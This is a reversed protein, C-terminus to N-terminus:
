VRRGGRKHARELASLLGTEGGGDDGGDDDGQGSGLPAGAAPKAARKAPVAGASAAAAREKTARRQLFRPTPVHLLLRRSAIEAVLLLLAVSVLWPGLQQRGRSRRPGALVQASAPSVNGGTRRTLGRLTVEGYRPDPQLEWEPSFPRALPPLRLSEGGIRVAARHVGEQVLPVRAEVRGPQLRTFRLPGTAGDPTTHVGDIGDLVAAREPEVELSYVATDRERRADVYVGGPAGGCLWRVVASFLDAYGDWQGWAGTLAGDAEGLFAAGRGLGVQWHALLPADHEDLTTIDRDARDRIWAVSFGGVPPAEDPLQGLLQLTPEVRLETSEEVLASRTVEITEQAFVRPLETADAVFQCRGNGLEAIEELLPADRDSPSGLGIVSVTIGDAALKPVFELYDLPEEADSADAFLVIHRGEQEAESLQRACEHLAAGVYIGGGSSEIARVQQQIGEKDDVATLPLVVHAETDVALVAVADTPAMLEIAGAAGRNALQMKTTDGATAQMSGSRDLAVAMALGFRRQEDRIELTVPLVEEIPSQHYGGVGFSQHGGTMLLGGGLDRVWSRVVQMAGTPLASAPVDELVVAEFGDLEALTLPAVEPAAVVVDIGATRLSRSLRDERGGPTVCLVRTRTLGRVVGLGRDNEPVADGELQVELAVTHEGPEGLELPLQLANRGTRLQATGRRVSEGDLLLHWRAPGDATAVVTANLAFPADIPVEPPVRVDHVAADRGFARGVPEVDIRVGRREALRALADVRERAVEGDSWVVLTANRGDPVLGLATTLAGGLDSGDRDFTREAESWRLTDSLHSVIAAERAFEVVAFRDGAQQAAVVERAFERAEALHGAPMSRSRDVVFVVDRGDAVTGFSPQALVGCLALLALLRLTGLLPRPWIRGRLVLVFLPALLFAEARVFQIM